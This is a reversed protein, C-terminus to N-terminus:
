PPTDRSRAIVPSPKFLYTKLNKVSLGQITGIFGYFKVQVPGGLGVM